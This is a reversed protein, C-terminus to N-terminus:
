LYYKKFYIFGWDGIGLGWQVKGKQSILIFCYYDISNIKKIIIESDFDSNSKNSKSKNSDLFSDDDEKSSNKKLLFVQNKQNM